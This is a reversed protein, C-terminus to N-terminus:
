LSRNVISAIPLDIVSGLFPWGLTNQPRNFMVVVWELLVTGYFDQAIRDPRGAYNSNISLKVIQTDDLNEKVMWDPRAWLGFTEVGDKTVVPTDSFRSFDQVDIPM